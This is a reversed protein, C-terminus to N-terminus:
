GHGNRGNLASKIARGTGADFIVLGEARFALGVTESFRVRVSSPIRAKIQGHDTDVTVIQTTGMYETGFVRGRIPARDCLTIHEPRVGLALLGGNGEEQIEPVTIEASSVRVSRQGRQIKDEFRLLNMPPSGIFDAVFMSAPQDYIEQPTGIQEIRGANMVAIQDAMAMAEFQDHTVYVTTARIRDHLDRMEECMLHRMELDLTGLPEDLLFAKPRRILARGLAVRQRDGGALKSIKSGLLHEIRLLRATEGLREHIEHRPVGQCKLPFGINGAVDMHPYLAFLQFVFAIDREGARRFTVDEGDLRIGGETPLELGAIMRLTTTKGCGSPGLMVFFTGDEVTFNSNAVAVFDQFAKNLKEVRIQAM